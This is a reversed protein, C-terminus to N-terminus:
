RASSRELEACPTGHRHFMAADSKSALNAKLAGIHRRSWIRMEASWADTSDRGVEVRKEVQADAFALVGVDHASVLASHRHQFLVCRLSNAPM